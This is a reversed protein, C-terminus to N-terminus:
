YDLHLRWSLVGYNAFFNTDYLDNWTRKHLALLGAYHVFVQSIESAYATIYPSAQAAQLAEGLDNADNYLARIATDGFITTGNDIASYAIKTTLVSAGANEGVSRAFDNQFLIPWFYPSAAHWSTQGALETEAFMHIVLAAMSHLDYNDPLYPRLNPDGPLSYVTEPTQQGIRQFAILEDDLSYTHLLSVDPDDSITATWPEETGYVLNKYSTNIAATVNSNMAAAEFRMNDFLAGEKGYVAGVLGALGGGLSHGTVSINALRPDIAFGGNDLIAVANYFAFAAAGQDADPLGSGVGYGYYFDLPFNDTGRYSIVTEGNYDYALAYFDIPEDLPNENIDKLINSDYKINATGISIGDIDSGEVPVGNEYDGFFINANYGRNYSDMSLIAYMLTENM